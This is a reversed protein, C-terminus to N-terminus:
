GVFTVIRRGSEILETPLRLGRAVHTQMPLQLCQTHALRVPRWTVSEPCDIENSRCASSPGELCAGLLTPAPDAAKRGGPEESGVLGVGCLKGGPSDSPRM